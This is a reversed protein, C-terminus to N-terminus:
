FETNFDGDQGWGKLEFSLDECLSEVLHTSLKRLVRADMVKHPKDLTTSIVVSNKLSTGLKTVDSGDLKAKLKKSSSLGHKYPKDGVLMYNQKRLDSSTVESDGETVEINQAKGKKSSSINETFAEVPTQIRIYQQQKKSGNTGKSSSNDQRVTSPKNNYPNQRTIGAEMSAPFNGISERRKLTQEQPNRFSECASAVMISTRVEHPHLARHSFSTMTGNKKTSEGAINTSSYAMKYLHNTPTATTSTPLVYGSLMKDGINIKTISCLQKKSLPLGTIGIIEEKRKHENQEEKKANKKKTENWTTNPRRMNNGSGQPTGPNSSYAMNARSWFSSNKNKFQSSSNLDRKLPQENGADNNYINSMSLQVTRELSPSVSRIEANEKPILNLPKVQIAQQIYGLLKLNM